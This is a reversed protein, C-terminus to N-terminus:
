LKKWHFMQNYRRKRLNGVSKWHSLQKHMYHSPRINLPCEQNHILFNQSCHLCMFILPVKKYKAYIVTELLCHLYKRHMCILVYIRCISQNVSASNNIIYTCCIQQSSAPERRLWDESPLSPLSVVWLQPPFGADVLEQERTGASRFFPFAFKTFYRPFTSHLNQLTVLSRPICFLLTPPLAPTCQIPSLSETSSRSGPLHLLIQFMPACFRLAPFAFFNNLFSRPIRLCGDLFVPTHSAFACAGWGHMNTHM